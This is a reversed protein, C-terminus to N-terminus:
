LILVYTLYKTSTLLMVLHLCFPKYRLRVNNTKNPELPRPAKTLSLPTHSTDVPTTRQRFLTTSPLTNVTVPPSTKATVSPM